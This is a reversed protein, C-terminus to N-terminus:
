YSIVSDLELAVPKSSTESAHINVSDIYQAQFVPTQIIPSGLQM